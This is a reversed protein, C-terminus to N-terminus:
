TIRATVYRLVNAVTGIINLGEFPPDQVHPDRQLVIGLPQQRKIAAQVDEKSQGRGATLTLVMGPFLVANRVPLLILTDQPLAPELATELSASSSEPAESESDMSM